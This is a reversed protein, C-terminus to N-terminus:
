KRKLSRYVKRLGRYGAKLVALKKPHNELKTSVKYKLYDRNMYYLCIARQWKSPIWHLSWDMTGTLGSAVNEIQGNWYDFTKVSKGLGLDDEFDSYAFIQRDKIKSLSCYYEFPLSADERQYYLYRIDEGFLNVVNKVYRLASQQIASVMYTEMFDPHYKKFVPKIKGDVVELYDCSPALKSILLERIVGTVGPSYKYFTHFDMDNKDARYFPIHNNVHIYYPTVDFGFNRRLNSEVRCSYGVDFTASKGQFAPKLYSYIKEKYAKLSNQDIFDDKFEKIFDYYEGLSSFTKDMIFGHNSCFKKREEYRDHKMVPQFENFLKEPTQNYINFNPVMGALDYPKDLQLPLMVSRTLYLYDERVPLKYIRNLENFCEMVLYGDRAMFNLNEYGNRKVEEALWQVVAFMHMGLAVTGIVDPDANFDTEPHFQVYPNAFITQAAVALLCKLGFFRAFQWGDRLAFPSAYLKHFLEGGYMDPVSNMFRDVAKPFHYSQLGKKKAMDVDSPMTDGIHLINEPATHLDKSLYQYLNGSWKGLKVDSSLYLKEYGEYGCHILIKEVTEKPLYMDSTIIIKKGFARALQFLERAYSRPHCYQLELEMEKKELIQRQEDTLGLWDEIVDYIDDLTIEEWSPHSLKGIERAKQEATIRIERFSLLDGTHLVQNAYIGLLYFLDTPEWFPRYVLTDFIDFSVVKTKDHCIKCKLEEGWLRKQSTIALGFAQGGKNPQIDDENLIKLLKRKELQSKSGHTIIDIWTGKLNGQWGKIMELYTDDQIRNHFADYLISFVHRIDCISKELQKFSKNKSQTSASNSQTYYVFDGHINTFHSCFYYLFSSYLVDECMILHETQLKFYPMCKEWLDRRYLKNWVVHLSWDKGMQKFLFDAAERGKLDLDLVRSMAYNHYEYHNEFDKVVEGMVMDSDTREAQEVLRRYLDISVKDDSDLFAIYKGHSAEVGTMRALFLGKNKEYEVLKVRSDMEEYSRIIESANGPSCDNVVIVEINKYTCGLISDLCRPLVKETGYVPVIVSILPRNKDNLDTNM